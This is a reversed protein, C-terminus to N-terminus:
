AAAELAADLYPLFHDFDWVQTVQTPHILEVGLHADTDDEDSAYGELEVLVWEATFEVGAIALYDALEEISHMVSKGARVDDPDGYATSTQGEDTLTPLYTPDQLRYYRTM